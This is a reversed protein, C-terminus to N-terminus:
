QRRYKKDIMSNIRKRLSRTPKGDNWRELDGEKLEIDYEQMAAVFFAEKEPLFAMYVESNKLYGNPLTHIKQLAHTCEHVITNDTWVEGTKVIHYSFNYTGNQDGMSPDIIHKPMGRYYVPIGSAVMIKKAHYMAEEIEM